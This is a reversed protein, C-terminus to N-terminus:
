LIFDRINVNLCKKKSEGILLSKIFRGIGWTYKSNKDIFKLPFM